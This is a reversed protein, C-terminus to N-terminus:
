NTKVKLYRKKGCAMKTMLRALLLGLQYQFSENIMIIKNNIIFLVCIIWVTQTENKIM